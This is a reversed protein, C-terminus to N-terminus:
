AKRQGKGCRYKFWAPEPKPFPVPSVLGPDLLDLAYMPTAFSTGVLRTVTGSRNGGALRGSLVASDDTPYAYDPGIRAGRSPGGSSYTCPLRVANSPQTFEVYGAAVRVRSGTAIGNLSGRAMVEVPSPAPAVRLHPSAQLYRRPDYNPSYLYGSHGRLKRGLNPDIRALYAHATGTASQGPRVTVTVKWRGPVALPWRAANSEQPRATAAIVMLVLYQGPTGCYPGATVTATLDSSSVSAQDIATIKEKTPSELSVELPALAIGPPLWIELYSPVQSDPAVCWTLPDLNQALDFEAHARLLHSNGSPVVVDLKWSQSDAQQTMEDVAQEVISSGDHPGTQPGYSLNIVVHQAPHQFMRRAYFRIAQMGDLAYHDMWRGSPDNLADAPLQVFAIDNRGALTPRRRPRANGTAHSMVQAGHSTAGRLSPLGSARYVSDEDLMGARTANGVLTALDGELLVRGYNVPPNAAAPDGQDWIFRVAFPPSRTSRYDRHAFPCGDDIIGLVKDPGGNVPPAPQPEVWEPGTTPSALTICKAGAKSLSQLQRPLKFPRVRATAYTSGDYLASIQVGGEALSSRMRPSIAEGFSVFLVVETLRRPFFRESSTYLWRLYPDGVADPKMRFRPGTSPQM